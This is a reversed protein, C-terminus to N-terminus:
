PLMTHLVSASNDWGIRCALAQITSGPAVAVSKTQLQWDGWEQSPGRIRYVISAAETPSRFTIKGGGIRAVPPEVQPTKGGPKMEEMLVVEPIMGTDNIQLQWSETAERM